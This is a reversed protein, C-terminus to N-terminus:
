ERKHYAVSTGAEFRLGAARSRISSKNNNNNNTNNNSKNLQTTTASILDAASWVRKTEPENCGTWMTMRMRTRMRVTM